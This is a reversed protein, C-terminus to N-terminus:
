DDDRRNFAEPPSWTGHGAFSRQKGCLTCRDGTVMKGYGHHWQYTSVHAPPHPCAAVLEERARKVAAVARQLAKYEPTQTRVADEAIAAKSLRVQAREWKELPTM